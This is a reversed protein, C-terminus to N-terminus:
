YPRQRIHKILLHRFNPEINKIQLFQIIDEWSTNKLLLDSATDPVAPIEVTSIPVFNPTLQAEDPALSPGSGLM